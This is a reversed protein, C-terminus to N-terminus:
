LTRHLQQYITHYTESGKDLSLLNLATKRIDTKNLNILHDINHITKLFADDTFAEVVCGAKNETIIETTDGIGDNCIVPIGMSLIEAQKTPSSAKKSFVPLIFFISIQSLSLLVPIDSRSARTVIVKDKSVGHKEALTYILDPKDPTIWLFRFETKNDSLLKFFRMMEDPMYWTGLSGLYSIIKEDENIGFKKIYLAQQIHTVKEASFFDTDTCCPIVSINDEDTNLQWSKIIDKGKQTLVIIHNANKIFTKELKKFYNYIIRYLPKKLTWLGGEVREDAWFGRMDFIFPVAYKKKFYLGIISSIYSRCHVINFCEKKHLLLAKKKLKYIDWITSFVPPKSTYTVYSWKIHYTLCLAHITKHESLFNKKKEASLISIEHGKGALYIMYPLVQSQGLADTM